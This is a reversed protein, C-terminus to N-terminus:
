RLDDRPGVLGDGNLQTTAWVALEERNIKANHRVDVPFRPHVLVYDLDILRLAENQSAHADRLERLGAVLADDAHLADRSPDSVWARPGTVKSTGSPM